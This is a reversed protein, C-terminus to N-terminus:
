PPPSNSPLYEVADPYMEKMAKMQAQFLEPDEVNHYTLEFALENKKHQDLYKFVHLAQVLHGTRPQALHRYIMYWNMRIRSDM